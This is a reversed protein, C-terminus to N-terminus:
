SLVGKLALVSLVGIILWTPIIPKCNMHTEGGEINPSGQILVHECSARFTMVCGMLVIPRIYYGTKTQKVICPSSFRLYPDGKRYGTITVKQVESPVKQGPFYIKM